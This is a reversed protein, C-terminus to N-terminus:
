EEDFNSEIMKRLCDFVEAEDEGEVTLTLETGRKAGLTIMMLLSKANATKNNASLTVESKYKSTIRAIESAPRAHIGLKNGIIFKREKM